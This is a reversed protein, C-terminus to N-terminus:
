RGWGRGELWRALARLDTKGSPLWPWDGRWLLARPAALAGFRARAARLIAEAEGQGQAVAVAVQGRAPDPVPLVAVQAIGPLSQLFDEIGEPQVWTEAVRFALDARGEIWLFGCRLAGREGTDCWGQADAVGQALLASRVRVRGQDVRIEVGPYPRGVAGPPTYADSLAIFSAESTGYFERAEAPSIAALAGRLGTDLRAGGILVLQLAPLDPGPSALLLRAQAPTAYLHSVAHDALWRRQRDPRLGALLHAEAGLSLAEIMAYLALSHTLAGLAAVRAGPGIAFLRANIAFSAQWSACSRPIARPAAGTGGSLAEFAGPGAVLQGAGGIRFPAAGMAAILAQAPPDPAILGGPGPPQLPWAGEPTVLRAAPHWCFGRM